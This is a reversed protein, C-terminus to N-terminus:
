VVDPQYFSFESINQHTFDILTDHNLKGDIYFKEKFYYDNRDKNAYLLIDDKSIISPTLRINFEQKVVGGVIQLFDNKIAKKDRIPASYQSM